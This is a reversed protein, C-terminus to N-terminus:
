RKTHWMVLRKANCYDHFETLFHDNYFSVMSSWVPQHLHKEWNTRPSVRTSARTKRIFMNFTWVLSKVTLTLQSIVPWHYLSHFLICHRSNISFIIIFFVSQKNQWHLVYVKGSKEWRISPQETPAYVHCELTVADGDCCRIDKLEKKIKPVSLVGRFTKEFFHIKNYLEKKLYVAKLQM